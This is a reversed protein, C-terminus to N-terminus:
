NSPPAKVPCCQSPYILDVIVNGSSRVGDKVYTVGTVTFGVRMHQKGGTATAIAIGDANTTVVTGGKIGDSFQGEIEVNAAPQGKADVVVLEVVAGHVDGTLTTLISGNFTFEAARGPSATSDVSVATRHNAGATAPAAIPAESVPTEAVPTLPAQPAPDPSSGCAAALLLCPLIATFTKM